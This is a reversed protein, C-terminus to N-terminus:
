ALSTVKFSTVALQTHQSWLGIELGTLYRTDSVNLVLKGDIFFRITTDEIEIRYIHLSTGPHFAAERAQADHLYDPGSVRVSDLGGLCNGVGAKYGQWGNFALSGRISMGFCANDQAGIVRITTEAAINTSAWAAASSVDCPAVITPGGSANWERTGANFLVGAHNQWDPSGNTWTRLNVSCPLPQMHLVPTPISTTHALAPLGHQSSVPPPSHMVLFALSIVVVLVMGGGAVAIRQWPPRVTNGEQRQQMPAPGEEPKFQTTKTEKM